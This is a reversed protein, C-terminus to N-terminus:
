PRGASKTRLLRAHRAFCRRQSDGGGERDDASSATSRRATTASCPIPPDDSWGVDLVTPAQGCRYTVRYRSSRAWSFRSAPRNASSISQRATRSGPPVNAHRELAIRSKGCKVAARLTAKGSSIRPTARASISRRTARASAPGAPGVPGLAAHASHRAAAARPAPCRCERRGSGSSARVAPEGIFEALSVGLQGFYAVRLWAM